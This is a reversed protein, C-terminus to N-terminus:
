GVVNTRQREFSGDLCGHVEVKPRFFSAILLQRGITRRLSKVNV